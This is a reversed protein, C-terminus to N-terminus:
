KDSMREIQVFSFFFFFFSAWEWLADTGEPPRANQVMSEMHSQMMVLSQNVLTSLEKLFVFSLSFIKIEYSCSNGM